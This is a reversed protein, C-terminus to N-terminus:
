NMRMPEGTEYHRAYLKLVEPHLAWNEMIQSPLEVFRGGGFHRLAFSLAIRSCATCPMASNTSCPRVEDLSLLSPKEATPKRFHRLQHHDRARDGGINSQERLASMWAGGRKSARPFYDTYLIGIAATRKQM